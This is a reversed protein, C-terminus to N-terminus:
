RSGAASSSSSCRGNARAASGAPLSSPLAASWCSSAPTPPTVRSTTSRRRRTRRRREGRHASVSTRSPAGISFTFAGSVPHSDASIAQWAVTYTGNALGPRLNVGYTVTRGSPFNRLHGTDARNGKPDLVRISEDDMAVQESFTLAIDGPARAVVAGDSPDSGLLAAHASAPAAAAFLAGLLAVVVLLLRALPLGSRAPVTTAKM